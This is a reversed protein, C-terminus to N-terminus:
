HRRMRNPRNRKPSWRKKAMSIIYRVYEHSVGVAAAIDKGTRHDIRRMQLILQRKTLHAEPWEWSQKALSVFEEPIVRDNEPRTGCEKQLMAEVEPCIATCTGKKKKECKACYGSSTM